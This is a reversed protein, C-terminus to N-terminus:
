NLKTLELHSGARLVTAAAATATNQAWQLQLNGATAGVQLLGTMQVLFEGITTVLVTQLAALGFGNPGVRLVAGAPGVLQWKADAAASAINFALLLEVRYIGGASVPVIVATDGALTTNTRGEDVAKTGRLPQPAAPGILSTAGDWGAATKPGYITKAATDIYFDGLSGAAAQPPGVGNLVTKGDAGKLSALWQAQTGVYGGAVAVEYASKGAAGVLSALWQSRTGVYGGQVAVQYADAGAPGVLSALWEDVTGQFGNAVAVDYASAGPANEQPAIGGLGPWNTAPVAAALVAEWDVSAAAIKAERTAAAAVARKAATRASEVARDAGLTALGAVKVQGAVAELTLGSSAAEASLFPYSLAAPSPDAEFQRAENEKRLYVSDQHPIDTIFRRRMDGAAEDIRAHLRADLKTLDPVWTWTARDIVDLAPDPSRDTQHCTQTAADWAWGYFRPHGAETVFDAHLIKGTATEVIIWHTEAM